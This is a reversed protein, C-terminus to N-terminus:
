DSTAGQALAERVNRLTAGRRVLVGPALQAVRLEEILWRIEPRGDAQAELEHITRM